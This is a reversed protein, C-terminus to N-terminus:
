DKNDDNEMARIEQQIRSANENVERGILFGFMTSIILKMVTIFGVGIIIGVLYGYQAGARIGLRIGACYNVIGIILSMMWYKRSLKKVVTTNRVKEDLTM